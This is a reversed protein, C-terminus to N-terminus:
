NRKPHCDNRLKGKQPVLALERAVAMKKEYVEKGEMQEHGNVPSKM